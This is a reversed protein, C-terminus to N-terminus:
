VKIISGQVGKGLSSKFESSIKSASSFITQGKNFADVADFREVGNKSMYERIAIERIAEDEKYFQRLGSESGGLWFASNASEISEPNQLLTPDRDVQVYETLSGTGLDYKTKYGTMQYVDSLYESADAQGNKGRTDKHSKVANESKLNSDFYNTILMSFSFPTLRPQADSIQTATTMIYGVFTMGDLYLYVRARREVCKTGRLYNEYNHYWESRWNFDPTNILFGQVQVVTPREGYFFIYEDGFTEIIQMKEQKAISFNQIIYNSNRVGEGSPSSSNTIVLPRVFGASDIARVSLHSFQDSKVTTGFLPRRVNVAFDLDASTTLDVVDEVFPDKEILIVPM